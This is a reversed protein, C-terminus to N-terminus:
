SSGQSHGGAVPIRLGDFALRQGHPLRASTEEYSFDHSLHTFYTTVAGIEQALEM